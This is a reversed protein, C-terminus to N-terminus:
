EGQKVLTPILMFNSLDLMGCLFALLVFVQGIVIYLSINAIALRGFVRELKNLM